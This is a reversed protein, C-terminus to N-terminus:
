DDNEKQWADLDALIQSKETTLQKGETALDKNKNEAAEMASKNDLVEKQVAEGSTILSMVSEAGWAATVAAALGLVLSIMSIRLNKM